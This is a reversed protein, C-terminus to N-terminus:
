AKKVEEARKVAKRLATAENCNNSEKLYYNIVERYEVQRCQM